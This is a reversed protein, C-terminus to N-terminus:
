FKGLETVSSPPLVHVSARPEVSSASWSRCHNATPGSAFGVCLGVTERSDWLRPDPKALWLMHTALDVSPPSVKSGGTGVVRGPSVAYASRCHASEPPGDDIVTLEFPRM